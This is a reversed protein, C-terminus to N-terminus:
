LLRRSEPWLLSGRSSWPATVLLTPLALTAPLLPGGGGGEGDRREPRTPAGLATSGSARFRM